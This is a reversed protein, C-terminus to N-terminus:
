HTSEQRFQTLCFLSFHLCANDKGVPSSKMGIPNTFRLTTISSGDIVLLRELRKYNKKKMFLCTCSKSDLIVMALLIGLIVTINLSGSHMCLGRKMTKVSYNNTM